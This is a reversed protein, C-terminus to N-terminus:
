ARGGEVRVICKAKGTVLAHVNLTLVWLGKRIETKQFGVSSFKESIVHHQNEAQRHTAGVYGCPSDLSVTILNKLPMFSQWSPYDAYSEGADKRINEEILRRSKEEDALIKPSYSYTIELSSFEDEVFFKLPVNTKENEHTLILQEELLVTMDTKGNEPTPSTNKM